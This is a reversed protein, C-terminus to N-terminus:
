RLLLPQIEAHDHQGYIVQALVLSSLFAGSRMVWKVHRSLAPRKTTGSVGEVSEEDLDGHAGEM